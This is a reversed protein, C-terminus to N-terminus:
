TAAPASHPAYRIVLPVYNLTNMLAFGQQAAGGSQVGRARALDHINKQYREWIGSGPQRM